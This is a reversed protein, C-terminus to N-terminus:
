NLRFALKSNRPPNWTRQQTRAALAEQCAKTEVVLAQRLRRYTNYFNDNQINDTVINLLSEFIKKNEALEIKRSEILENRNNFGLEMSRDNKDIINELEDLSTKVSEIWPNNKPNINTTIEGFWILPYDHRRRTM